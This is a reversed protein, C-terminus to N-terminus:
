VKFVAPLIRENRSRPTYLARETRSRRGEGRTVPRARRSLPRPWQTEETVSRALPREDPTKREYVISFYRTVPNPQEAVQEVQAALDREDGAAEAPEAAGVDAGQRQGPRADRREVDGARGVAEAVQRGLAAVHPGLHDVERLAGVDLGGDVPDGGIEAGRGDEHVVGAHSRRRGGGAGLVAAELVVGFHGPVRHDVRM